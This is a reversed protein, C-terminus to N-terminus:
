GCLLPGLTLLVPYLDIVRCFCVLKEKKKEERRDWMYGGGRGTTMKTGDTGTIRKVISVIRGSIRGVSSSM